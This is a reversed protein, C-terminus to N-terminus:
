NRFVMCGFSSRKLAKCANQAAAEADFGAFRARVIRTSGKTAAETYPDAKALTGGAKARAKAIQAQADAESGYAGIQIAWGSRSATSAASAPEAARQPLAVPGASAVQVPAPAPKSPLASQATMKGGTFTLTGLMGPQNAMSATPAAPRPVPVTKVAVPVIPEASGPAPLATRGV